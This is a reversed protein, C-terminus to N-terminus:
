KRQHYFTAAAKSMIKRDKASQQVTVRKVCKRLSIFSFYWFIIKHKEKKM